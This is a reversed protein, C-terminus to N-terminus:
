RRRRSLRDTREVALRAWDLSAAMEDDILEPTERRLVEGVRIAEKLKAIRADDNLKQNDTIVGGSTVDGTGPTQTVAGTTPDTTETPENLVEANLDGDDVAIQRSQAPTIEGSQIMSGRTAARIQKVKAKQEQDRWDNTALYFTTRNPLVDYTMAHEWSKRWSALGQGEASEDAIESALGSNMGAPRNIFEDVNLGISMAYRRYGDDREKEVDFNDPISAIPITVLGPPESKMTTLIHAGRFLVFGQAGTRKNTGEFESEIDAAKLSATLQQDTIGNVIYIALNRRGTIKERFYTEIAALKVISEWSRDAACQGAGRMEVRASPSDVLRIVAYSPMLHWAGDWSNYIVPWEPDGTPYCRLSDLHRLGLVKAGRANSQRIIEVHQGNNTTLYDQLGRQIGSVYRGDYNLILDQSRNIRQQSDDLDELRFGLAAQKSKAKYLANAWM